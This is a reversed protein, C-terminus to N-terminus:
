VTPRTPDLVRLHEGADAAVVARQAHVELDASYAPCSRCCSPPTLVPFGCTAIALEDTSGHAPTHIASSM